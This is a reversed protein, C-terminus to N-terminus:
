SAIKQNAAKKKLAYDAEFAKGSKVVGFALVALRRAVACRAVKPAKGQAKLKEYFAALPPNFRCASLAAMYLLNRLQTHGGGGVQPYGRVSTGSRREVPVLGAYHALSAGSKCATFNFSLM